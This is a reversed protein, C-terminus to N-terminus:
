RFAASIMQHDSTWSAPAVVPAFCEAKGRFFMYDFCTAPYWKSEPMTNREAVGDFCDKFGAGLMTPITGEGAYGDDFVSTNFDGAVIVNEVHRGDYDRACIEDAFAVLERASVERMRRNAAPLADADPADQPIFNSKLHVGIVATLSGGFDFVAYVFGRPPKVGDTGRWMRWGSDIADFRSIIANQHPPITADPHRPFDTIANVRWTGKMERNTALMTTAELDRMEELLVLDAQQWAIFSAAHGIRKQERERNRSAEDLVPYGVPFWKMNWSAVRIGDHAGAMAGDAAGSIHDGLRCSMHDGLRCSSFVLAAIACLFAPFLIKLKPKM